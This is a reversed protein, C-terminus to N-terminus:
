YRNDQEYEELKGRCIAKGLDLCSSFGFGPLEGFSAVGLPLGQFSGRPSQKHQEWQRQRSSQPNHAGQHGLEM